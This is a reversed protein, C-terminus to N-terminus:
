HCQSCKAPLSSYATVLHESFSVRVWGWQPTSSVRSLLSSSTQFIQHRSLNSVQSPPNSGKLPHVFPYWRKSISVHRSHGQQWAVANDPGTGNGGGLVETPILSPAVPGESVTLSLKRPGSLWGSEPQWPGQSSAEKAREPMFLDVYNPHLSYVLQKNNRPGRAHFIPERADGTLYPAKQKMLFLVSLGKLLPMLCCRSFLGEAKGPFIDTHGLRSQHFSNKFCDLFSFPDPKLPIPM